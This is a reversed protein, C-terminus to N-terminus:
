PIIIENYIICVVSIKISVYLICQLHQLAGLVMPLFVNVKERVMTFRYYSCDFCHYPLAIHKANISFKRCKIIEIIKKKKSFHLVKHRDVLYYDKYQILLSYYHEALYKSYNERGLDFQVLQVLQM